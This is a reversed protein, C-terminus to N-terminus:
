FRAYVTESECRTNSTTFAIITAVLSYTLLPRTQVDQAQGLSYAQLRLTAQLGAIGEAASGQRLQEAQVLTLMAFELAQVGTAQRLRQLTAFSRSSM